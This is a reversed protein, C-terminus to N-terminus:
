QPPLLPQFGNERQRENHTQGYLRLIYTEAEHRTKDATTHIPPRPNLLDALFIVGVISKYICMTSRHNYEALSVDMLGSTCIPM